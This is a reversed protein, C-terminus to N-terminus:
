KRFNVLFVGFLTVSMGLIMPWGVKENLFVVGLIIAIVPNIYTYLSAITAPLNKLAFLYATMALVSGFITVVALSIWGLQNIILPKDWDYFFSAVLMMLGGALIQLGSDIVPSSKETSFRKAYITGFAWLVVALLVCVIGWFYDPRMLNQWGDSFIIGLGGFGCLIGSWQRKTLQENKEWFHNLLAIAVPVLSAVLSLLSIPLTLIAWNSLGNWCGITLFGIGLQEFIHKKSPFPQKQIWFGVIFLLAAAPIQRFVALRFPGFQEAGIKVFLFSSGWVLCVFILALMALTRTNKM